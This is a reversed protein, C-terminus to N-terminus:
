PKSDFKAQKSGASTTRSQANLARNANSGTRYIMSAANSGNTVEIPLPPHSKEKTASFHEDGLFIAIRECRV